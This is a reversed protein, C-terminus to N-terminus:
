LVNSAPGIFSLIVPLLVLGHWAALVILAFFLSFFTTSRILFCPVPFPM